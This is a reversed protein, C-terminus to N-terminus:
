GSDQRHLRRAEESITVIDRFPSRLAPAQLSLRLRPARLSLEPQQCGMVILPVQPPALGILRPMGM